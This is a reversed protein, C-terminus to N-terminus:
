KLCSAIYGRQEAEERNGFCIKNEPKIRKAIACTALHYKNSNKSGVYVCPTTSEKAVVPEGIPEQQPPIVPLSESKTTLSLPAEPVTIVLPAIQRTRGQLLGAEYSLVGVLIVGLLVM